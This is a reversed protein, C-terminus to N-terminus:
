NLAGLRNVPWVRLVLIGTIQEEAVCGVDSVRSDLSVSRNDGMVFYRGEPVQYPFEIDCEGPAKELLYSEELVTGDVTINGAEDMDVWEGPLAIIRKVLIKNNYWFAIIDGRSFTGDKVSIIIDGDTLAPSMSEGYIRLVPTLLTFILVSVAGVVIIVSVATRFARRGRLKENERKLEGEVLSSVPMDEATFFIKRKRKM